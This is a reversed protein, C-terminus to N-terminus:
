VLGMKLRQALTIFYTYVNNINSCGIFRFLFLLLSM